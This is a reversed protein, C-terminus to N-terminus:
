KPSAEYHVRFKACMTTVISNVLSTQGQRASIRQEAEAEAAQVQPTALLCALQSAAFAASLFHNLRM